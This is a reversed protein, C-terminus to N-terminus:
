EWRLLRMAKIWQRPDSDSRSREVLVEPTNATGIDRKGVSVLASSALDYTM